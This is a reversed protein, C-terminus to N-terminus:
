TRVLMAIAAKVEEILEPHKEGVIWKEIHKEVDNRLKNIAGQYEGAEIQQIVADVKDLLTQQQGAWAHENNFDSAQLNAIKDKLNCLCLIREVGPVRYQGNVIPEGPLYCRLNLAFADSSSPAPLWNSVKDESPPRRQIYIELSGDSGYKLGETRDGISYRNIPNKTFYRRGDPAIEYLSLSWFANVPPLDEKEFRLVYCNRADYPNGDKDTVSGFYVAEVPELAGLGVLAVFARLYYDKGYNGMNPPLYTFGERVTISSMAKYIDRQRAQRMATLVIEKQEETFRDPDFTQGPGVGIKAFESMLSAEDSPPPNETMGINVIQFFNWPDTPDPAPPPNDLDTKVKAEGTGEWVSLPTLQYQDQIAHVNPLDEEGEVLTRGILWVSNTPSSIVPLGAPTEGGWDPGVIVYSGAGTGTTRMGVYDFVNTYFDMFPMVYYRGNTDPVSLIIPELSLDLWASSYLTDNNPQTVSRDTYDSLHRKHGFHNLDTRAPNNQDYVANYRTRYMEYVPFSYIYAQKVLAALEDNTMEIGPTATVSGFPLVMAVIATIAISMYIWSRM